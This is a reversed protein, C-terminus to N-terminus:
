IMCVCIKIELVYKLRKLVILNIKYENLQDMKDHKLKLKMLIINLIFGSANIGIIVPGKRIIPSSNEIFRLPERNGTVLYKYV